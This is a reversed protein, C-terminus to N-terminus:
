EAGVLRQLALERLLTRQIKTGNASPTTPFEVLSFIRQPVKYGALLTACWDRLVKEDFKMASGAIVFAIAAPRGAYTVGVVQSASVGPHQDLILEIELPSVLYGGLRLVDGLRTLFCFDGASRLYGLDGTRFYGDATFARATAEPDGYYEKFLSPGRLQIEGAVDHPLVDGSEPDVIRIRASPSVPLGGGQRRIALPADLRQLAFLAQCESMGYLGRMVVGRAFAREAIDELAPNFSAYAFYRLSQFPRSVTTTELIRDMMEDSGCMHTVSSEDLLRASAQADFVPLMFLSAGGALAGLAQTFGFVGCLPLAQLVRANPGDFGFHAAVERAHLAVAAQTHCVFKPASTTGSTTFIVCRTEAPVVPLPELVATRLDVYAIPVGPLPVSLSPAPGVLVTYAVDYSQASTIQALIAGFDLARFGPSLALIKCGSRQLIDGVEHARFRTNISVAIAALQACAFFLELWEPTNPLWLGIRDGAQVGLRRLGAAVRQSNERLAAGTLFADDTGSLVRAPDLTSLFASLNENM